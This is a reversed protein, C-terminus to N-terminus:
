KNEKLWEYDLPNGEFDVFGWKGRSKVALWGGSYKGVEVYKPAILETGGLLDFIGVKKDDYVRVIRLEEDVYKEIDVRTYQFPAVVEGKANIAGRQDQGGVEAFGLNFDDAHRYKLPIVANGDTDVYGYADGICACALGVDENMDGLSDYKMPCIERGQSDVMGSKWDRRLMAFHGQSSISISDYETPVIEKGEKDILGEKRNVEVKILDGSLGLIRDYKHESLRKGDPSYLAQKGDVTSRWYGGEKEDFKSLSDHETELILNGQLDYAGCKGGAKVIIYQRSDEKLDIWKSFRDDSEYICPIVDKGEHDVWGKKGNEEKRYIYGPEGASAPTRLSQRFRYECEGKINIYRDNGVYALGDKFDDATELTIPHLLNGNVDIYGWLDDIRVAAFGESFNRVESFPCIPSPVKKKKPKNEKTEVPLGLPNGSADLLGCKNKKVVYYGKEPIENVRDYGVLFMEKEVEQGFDLVTNGDKARRLKIHDYTFYGLETWVALSNEYEFPVLVNGKLDVVGCHDHDDGAIVYGQKYEAIKYKLPFLEKGQMDYLATKGDKMASIYVDQYKIVACSDYIFPVIEKGAVDVAGAVGNKMMDVADCRMQHDYPMADYIFDTILNGQADIFGVKGDRMVAARGHGFVSMDEYEMPIVENGDMDIAGYKGDIAVVCLGEKPEKATTFKYPIIEKFSPLEVLAYLLSENQVFARTFDDNVIVDNFICPNIKKKAM